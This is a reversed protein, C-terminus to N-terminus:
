PVRAVTEVEALAAAPHGAVRGSARTIRVEVADALVIELVVRTGDPRLPQDVTQRGVEVGGRSLRLECARVRADTHARPEPRVGYLVVARVELPIPWTLRLWEGERGGAVWAVDAPAGPTRRDVAAHAGATGPAVSSAEVRASPAANFWRAEEATAPVPITSHGVYCGVCTRHGATSVNLGQVHVPGHASMLVTGDRKVVQEFMPVPAPLGLADVDGGPSIPEERVLVATDGGAADPRALVAFFRMRLSDALPPADPIPADVPANAFLNLCHFEFAARVPFQSADTLPLSGEAVGGGRITGAAEGGKDSRAARAVLPAPDLELTGPLDVVREIRSGDRGMVYIGFDGRAGPDYAFVIRGDPLGAPSCAQPAALGRADHYPDAPAEGPLPGALRRAPGIAGLLGHRASDLGFTQIGVGGPDPSLALHRAYVGVVVGGELLAPQYAMTAARSRPDGCALRLESDRPAISVAQWLNASDAPLATEPDTTIGSADLDSARFRNTWWRAYVIRGTGPDFAPEEAGNRETTLRVPPSGRDDSIQFLNTARVDGYEAIQPFRTSAFVLEHDAGWCPDIDDYREFRSAASGLPTLDLVRDSHTVQRLGTGDANVLYIRWASDPSPTGAFAIRKGDFSVAPDSVDYLSNEPLLARLRGNRERVVLRGGVALTRGHPGLGPIQGAAADPPPNRSVFVIAPLARAAAQAPWAGPPAPALLALWAATRALPRM